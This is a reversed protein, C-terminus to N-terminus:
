GWAHGRATNVAAALLRSGGRAIVGLSRWATPVWAVPGSLEKRGGMVRFGSIV